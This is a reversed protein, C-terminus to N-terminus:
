KGFETLLTTRVNESWNLREELMSVDMGMKKLVAIERKVEEIDTEMDGLRKKMEPSLEVLRRRPVEAM